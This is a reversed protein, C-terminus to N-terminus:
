RRKGKRPQFDRGLESRLAPTASAATEVLAGHALAQSAETEKRLEALAQELAAKDFPERSLADRVKQRSEVIARRREGFEPHRGGVVRQFAGPGRRKEHMGSPMPRGRDAHPQTRRQLAQGVLVGGLLLNLGLSLAVALALRKALPTM